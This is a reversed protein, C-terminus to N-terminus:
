LAKGLIILWYFLCICSVFCALRTSSLKRCFIRHENPRLDVVNCLKYYKEKDRGVYHLSALQILLWALGLASGFIAIIIPHDNNKSSALVFLGAHLASFATFRHWFFSQEHNVRDHLIKLRLENRESLDTQM